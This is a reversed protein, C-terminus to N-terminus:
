NTLYGMPDQPVGNRRIEFHLMPEQARGSQGVKAITQSQRVPDGVKVLIASNYSYVTQYGNSHDIIVTQGFGKLLSDCYVVKGARAAVVPKGQYASIDIGKNVSTEDKDGFRSIVSGRVPWIFSPKAAATYAPTGAAAASAPPIVLVRGKEVVRVDTISNARALDDLSVNYMKSISWMTEGPRVTHYKVGTVATTIAPLAAPVTITQPAAPVTYTYYTATSVPKHASACGALALSLCIM